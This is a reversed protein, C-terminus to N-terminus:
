DELSVASIDSQISAVADDADDAGPRLFFAHGGSLTPGYFRMLAANDLLIVNSPHKEKKDFTPLYRSAVYVAVVQHTPQDQISAVARKSVNLVVNLL